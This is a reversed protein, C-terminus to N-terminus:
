GPTSGRASCTSCAASRGSSRAGGAVPRRRRHRRPLPRDLAGPEGPRRPHRHDAHLRAGGGGPRPRVTRHRRAGHRRAATVDHVAVTSPRRGRGARRPHPRDGSGGGQHVRRAPRSRADARRDLAEVGVPGDGPLRRVGAASRAPRDLEPAPQPRPPGDDRRPRPRRDRRHVVHRCRGEARAPRQAPPGPRDGHPVAGQPSRHEVRRAPRHGHLPVAGPAHAPADDLGDVVVAAAPDHGALAAVM